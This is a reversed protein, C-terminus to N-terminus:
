FDFDEFHIEKSKEDFLTEFSKEDLLKDINTFLQKAKDASIPNDAEYIFQIVIKDDFVEIQLEYPYKCYKVVSSQININSVPLEPAYMFNTVLSVTKNSETNKQLRPGSKFLSSCNLFTFMGPIGCQLANDTYAILSETGFISHSLLLFCDQLSLEFNKAIQELLEKEEKKLIREFVSCEKSSSETKAINRISKQHLLAKYNRQVIKQEGQLASYFAQMIMSIGVADLLIHHWQVMLKDDSHFIRLLPKGKKLADADLPIKIFDRFQQCKEWHKHNTDNAIVYTLHTYREFVFDIAKDIEKPGIKKPLKCNFSLLFPSDRLSYNGEEALLIDRQLPNLPYYDPLSLETEKEKEAILEDLESITQHLILEKVSLSIGYNNELWAQMRMTKISNGGLSQFQANKRFNKHGLIAEWCRSAKSDHFDAYVTEANDFYNELLLKRDIKGNINRPLFDLHVQNEPIMFEPLIKSCAKRFQNDSMKKGTWFAILKIDETKDVTIAAQEIGEVNHLLSEV